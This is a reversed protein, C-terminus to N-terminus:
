DTFVDGIEEPGGVRAMPNPHSGSSTQASRFHVDRRRRGRRHRVDSFYRFCM